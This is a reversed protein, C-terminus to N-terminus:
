EAGSNQHRWWDELYEARRRYEKEEPTEEDRLERNLDENIHRIQNDNAM